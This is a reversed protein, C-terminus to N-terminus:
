FYSGRCSIEMLTTHASSYVIVTLSSISCRISNRLKFPLQVHEDSDVSTLISCQKTLIEHRPEGIKASIVYASFKAEQLCAAQPLSRINRGLRGRFRLSQRSQPYACAAHDSGESGASAIPCTGFGRTLLRVLKKKGM